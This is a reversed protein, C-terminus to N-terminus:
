TQWSGWRPLWPPAQVFKGLTEYLLLHRGRFGETLGRPGALEGKLPAKQAYGVEGSLPPPGRTLTAPPNATRLIGIPICWPSNACAREAEGPPFSAAKDTRRFRCPQSFLSPSLRFVTQVEDSPILRLNNCIIERQKTENVVHFLNEYFLCGEGSVSSKMFIETCAM